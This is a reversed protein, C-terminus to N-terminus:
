NIRLRQGVRIVSNRSIGNLRCLKTVSVGYRNGIGSLTDGSRVRHVIVKNAEELYAFSARTLTYKQDILCNTDFDFFDKPDIANGQYRVEFHLHPGSSRGTSGGWGVLDGAKIEDGVNVLRKSLHGYLTELGNYHRVLVYNGYGPRDYNAMRVVGDFAVKVSDGTTLRLDVGYHWRYRRLGFDSTIVSKKLPNEWVLGVEPYFLTLETTDKYDLGNFKYPNVRQSDWINYYDEASLWVSDLSLKDSVAVEHGYSLILPPTAPGGEAPPAMAELEATILSDLFDFDVAFADNSVVFLPAPPIPAPTERKKFSFFSKVWSKSEQARSEFALLIVVWAALLLSKKIMAALIRGIREGGFIKRCGVCGYM